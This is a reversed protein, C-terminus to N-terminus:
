ENTNLLEDYAVTQYAALEDPDTYENFDDMSPTLGVEDREESIWDIHRKLQDDFSVYTRMHDRTIVEESPGTATEGSIRLAPYRWVYYYYFDKLDEEIFELQDETLTSQQTLATLTLEIEETGKTVLAQTEELEPIDALEFHIDTVVERVDMEEQPTLIGSPTGAGYQSLTSNDDQEKGREVIKDLWDQLRTSAQYLATYKPPAYHEYFDCLFETEGTFIIKRLDYEGFFTTDRYFERYKAVDSDVGSADRDGINTATTFGEEQRGDIPSVPSPNNNSATKCGKLYWSYTLPLDFEEIAIYLLKEEEVGTLERDLNRVSRKLDNVAHGLGELVTERLRHEEDSVGDDSPPPSPSMTSLHSTRFTTNNLLIKWLPNFVQRGRHFHNGEM